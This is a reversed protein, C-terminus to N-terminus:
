SSCAFTILTAYHSFCYLIGDENRRSFLNRREEKGGFGSYIDCQLSDMRVGGFHAKLDLKVIDRAVVTV